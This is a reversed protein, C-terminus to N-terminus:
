QRAYIEVYIDSGDMDTIELTTDTLKTIEVSEANQGNIKFIEIYPM